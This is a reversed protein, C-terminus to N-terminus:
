ADQVPNIVNCKQTVFELDLPFSPYLTVAHLVVRPFIVYVFYKKLILM